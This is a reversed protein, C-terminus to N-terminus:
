PQVEAAVMEAYRALAERLQRAGSSLASALEELAEPRDAVVDVDGIHVVELPPCSDYTYITTSTMTGPWVSLRVGVLTKSSM